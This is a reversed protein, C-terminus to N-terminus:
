LGFPTPLVVSYPICSESRAPSGDTPIIICATNMCMARDRADQCPDIVTADTFWACSVLTNGTPSCSFTGNPQQLAKCGTASTVRLAGCSGAGGCAVPMATPVCDRADRVYGPCVNRTAQCTTSPSFPCLCQGRGEAMLAETSGGVGVDAEGDGEELSPEGEEAAVCGGLCLTFLLM